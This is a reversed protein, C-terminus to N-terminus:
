EIFCCQHELRETTFGHPRWSSQATSRQTAVEGVTAVELTVTIVTAIFKTTISRISKFHVM